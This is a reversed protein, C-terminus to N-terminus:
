DAPATPANAPLGHKVNFARIAAFSKRCKEAESTANYETRSNWADLRAIAETGLSGLSVSVWKPVNDAAALSRVAALFTKEDNFYWIEGHEPGDNAIFIFFGDLMARFDVGEAFVGENMKDLFAQVMKSPFGHVLMLKKALLFSVLSTFGYAKRKRGPVTLSPRIQLLQGTWSQLVRFNVPRKDDHIIAAIECLSWHSRLYQSIKTELDTM